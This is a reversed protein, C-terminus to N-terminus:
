QPISSLKDQLKGCSPNALNGKLTLINKQGRYKSYVPILEQNMVFKNFCVPFVLSSKLSSLM